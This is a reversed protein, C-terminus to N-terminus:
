RFKMHQEVKYGCLALLRGVHDCIKVFYTMFRHHGSLQLFPLAITYLPVAAISTLVKRWKEPTNTYSVSGRLLARRIHYRRCLRSSPQTEYVVANDCWVFVHGKAILRKFFDCDEGQTSFYPDFLDSDLRIVRKDLLVNGTRTQSWKLAYGTKYRHRECIRSKIIWTPPQDEFHPIVPALVGTVQHEQWTCYLDYLWHGDPFEDDDIFAVLDGSASRLARNRALALNQQPECAYEIAVVSTKVVEEVV